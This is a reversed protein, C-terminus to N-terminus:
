RKQKKPNALAALWQATASAEAELWQRFRRVQPRALADPRHRAVFAHATFAGTRASYPLALEGADVRDNVLAVGALAVGADARVADLLPALRPHRMGRRLATQRAGHAEFWAPWTLAGPDDKYFDLHLLPFGELRERRARRGIRAAIDPSCVPVIFDHFLVDSTERMEVPAFVIECDARGIRLPADGAGNICFRINPHGARFRPLRPGLWLDAFDPTAAIHIEHVRELDLVGAARELEGFATTLADLAKALEATPRLGSRGRVLLDIGLYDELTKIRQGVAAPTLGLADAAAKLSGTRVALELAQFSRLHSPAVM